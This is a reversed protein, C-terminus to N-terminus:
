AWLVKRLRTAPSPITLAYDICVLRGDLIGFNEPKTDTIFAPLQDPLSISGTPEARRMLLLRGDPSLFEVPALWRAVKDYHQHDGWFQAELINAFRRFDGNEVKVVLDPRLKCEYVVRHAGEGLQKGCLLNFCDEFTAANDAM